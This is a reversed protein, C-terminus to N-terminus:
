GDERRCFDVPFLFAAVLKAKFTWQAHKSFCSRLNIDGVVTRSTSILYPGDNDGDGDRQFTGYSFKRDLLFDDHWGSHLLIGEYHFWLRKCFVSVKKNKNIKSINLQLLKLKSCTLGLKYKEGRNNKKLFFGKIGRGIKTLTEEM